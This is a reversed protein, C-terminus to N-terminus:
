FEMDSANSLTPSPPVCFRKDSASEDDSEQAKRKGLLSQRLHPDRMGNSTSYTRRYPSQSGSRGRGVPSHPSAPMTFLLGVPSVSVEPDNLDVSSCRSSGAISIPESAREPFMSVPCTETSSPSPPSPMAISHSPSAEITAPPTWSLSSFLNPLTLDSCSRSLRMKAHMEGEGYCEAAVFSKSEQKLQNIVPLMKRRRLPFGEANASLRSPGHDGGLSFGELKDVAGKLRLAIGHDSGGPRAPSDPFTPVTSHVGSDDRWGVFPNESVDRPSGNSPSCSVTFGRKRPQFDRLSYPDSARYKMTSPKRVVEANYLSPEPTSPDSGTDTMDSDM